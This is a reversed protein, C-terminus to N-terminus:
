NTRYIFFLEGGITRKLELGDYGSLFHGRGDAEIAAEVLDDLNDGVWALIGDNGDECSDQLAEIVKVTIGKPVYKVLFEPNFAWITDKCYNHAADDAESDTLVRYERGGVAYCNEYEPTIDDVEYEEEVALAIIKPDEEWVKIGEIAKKFDERLEDIQAKNFGLDAESLIGKLIPLTPHDASNYGIYCSLPPNEMDLIGKLLSKDDILDCSKLYRLVKRTTWASSNKSGPTATAPTLVGHQECGIVYGSGKDSVYFSLSDEEEDKEIRSPIREVAAYCAELQAPWLLTPLLKNNITGLRKIKTPSIGDGYKLRTEEELSIWVSALKQPNGETVENLIDWLEKNDEEPVGELFDEELGLCWAVSDYEKNDLYYRANEFAHMPYGKKGAKISRLHSRNIVAFEPALEAVIGGVAGSGGEHSGTFSIYGGEDTFTVTFDKRKFIKKM